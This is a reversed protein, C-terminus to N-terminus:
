AQLKFLWGTYCAEDENTHEDDSAVPFATFTAKFSRQGDANFPVNFDVQVGARYLYIQRTASPEQGDYPTVEVEFASDYQSNGVCTKVVVQDGSSGTGSAGPILLKLIALQTRTLIAEVAASSGTYIKDVPSTGDQADKIPAADETFTFNIDGKGLDMFQASLAARKVRIRAPGLDGLFGSM